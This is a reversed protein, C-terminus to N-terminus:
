DEDTDKAAKREAERLADVMKQLREPIPEDAIGRYKKRLADGVSKSRADKEPLPVIQPRRSSKGPKEALRAEAPRNIIQSTIL